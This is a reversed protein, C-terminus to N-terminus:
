FLAVILDISVLEIIWVAAFSIAKRYYTIAALISYRRNENLM